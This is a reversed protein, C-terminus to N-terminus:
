HSKIKGLVLFVAEETGPVPLCSLSCCFLQRWSHFYGGHLSKTRGFGVCALFGHCPLGYTIFRLPLSRVKYDMIWGLVKIVTKPQPLFLTVVSDRCWASGCNAYSYKPCMAIWPLNFFILLKCDAGTRPFVFRWSDGTSELNYQAEKCICIRGWTVLTHKTHSKCQTTVVIWGMKPLGKSM